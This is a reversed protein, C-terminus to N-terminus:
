SWIYKMQISNSSMYSILDMHHFPVRYCMSSIVLHTFNIICILDMFRLRMRILENGGLTCCGKILDLRFYFIHIHSPLGWTITAQTKPNSQVHWISKKDWTSATLTSSFICQKNHMPTPFFHPQSKSLSSFMSLSWTVNLM